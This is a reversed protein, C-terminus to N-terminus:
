REGETESCEEEKKANANWKKIGLKHVMDNHLTRYTVIAPTISIVQVRAGYIEYTRKKM